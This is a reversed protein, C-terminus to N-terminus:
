SDTDEKHNCPHNEGMNAVARELLRTFATKEEPTFGQVIQEETRRITDHMTDLCDQGKPLLHIRKCRRDQPDPQLALFEKKELRALLGSVTPHSLHFVQEVDKPCPPRKCYALYGLLQGQSATLEVLELSRTMRQDICWHLIRTLHGIQKKM